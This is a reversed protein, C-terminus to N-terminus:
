KSVESFVTVFSQRKRHKMHGPNIHHAIALDSAVRVRLAAQALPAGSGPEEKPQHKAKRRQDGGAPNKELHVQLTNKLYISMLPHNM